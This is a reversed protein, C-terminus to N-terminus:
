FKLDLNTGTRRPRGTRKSPLTVNVIRTDNNGKFSFGKRNTAEVTFTVRHSKRVVGNVAIDGTVILRVDDPNKAEANLDAEANTIVYNLTKESM